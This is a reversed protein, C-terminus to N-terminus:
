NGQLPSGSPMDGAQQNPLRGPGGGVSNSTFNGIEGVRVERPPPTVTPRIIDGDNDSAASPSATIASQNPTILGSGNPRIPELPGAAPRGATPRSSSPEPRQPNLSAQGGGPQTPIGNYPVVTPMTMASPMPAPAMYSPMPYSTQYAPARARAPTAAAAAAARTRKAVEAEVARKVEAQQEATLRPDNATMYATTTVEPKAGFISAVNERGEGTVYAPVGLSQMSAADLVDLVVLGAGQVRPLDEGRVSVMFPRASDAENKCAQRNGSLKPHIAGMGGPKSPDMAILWKCGKEDTNEIVRDTSLPATYYVIMREPRTDVPQMSTTAPAAQAKPQVANLYSNGAWAAFATGAVVLAGGVMWIWRSTSPIQETVEEVVETETATEATTEPMIVQYTPRPAMSGPLRIVHGPAPLYHNRM